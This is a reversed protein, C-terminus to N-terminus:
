MYHLWSGDGLKACAREPVLGGIPEDPFCFTENLLIGDPINIDYKDVVNQLPHNEDSGGGIGICELSDGRVNMATTLVGGGELNYLRNFWSYQSTAWQPMLLTFSFLILLNKM